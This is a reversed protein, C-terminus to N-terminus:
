WAFRHFPCLFILAGGVVIYKKGNGEFGAEVTKPFSLWKICLADLAYCAIANCMWLTGFCFVSNCAASLGVAVKKSLIFRRRVQSVPILSADANGAEGLQMGFFVRPCCIANGFLPAVYSHLPPLHAVFSQFAPLLSAYWNISLICTAPLTRRMTLWHSRPVSPPWARPHGTM